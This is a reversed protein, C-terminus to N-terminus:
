RSRSWRARHVPLLVQRLSCLNGTARDVCMFYTFRKGLTQGTRYTPVMLLVVFWFELWGVFSRDAAPLGSDAGTVQFTIAISGVYVAGGRHDVDIMSAVLRRGLTPLELFEAAELMM